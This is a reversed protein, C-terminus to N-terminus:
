MFLDLIRRVVDGWVLHASLPRLIGAAILALLM